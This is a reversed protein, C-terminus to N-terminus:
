RPKNWDRCTRRTYVFAFPDLEGLHEKSSATASWLRLDYRSGRAPFSRLLTGTGIGCGPRPDQHLQLYLGSISGTQGHFSPTNSPELKPALDISVAFAHEGFSDFIPVKLIYVQGGIVTRVPKKAAAYLNRRLEKADVSSSKYTAISIGVAGKRRSSTSGAM